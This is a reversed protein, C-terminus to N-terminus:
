KEGEIEIVIRRKGNKYTFKIIKAPILTEHSKKIYLNPVIATGDGPFVWRMSTRVEPWKTKPM